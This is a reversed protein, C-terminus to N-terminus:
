CNSSSRRGAPRNPSRLQHQAVRDEDEGDAADVGQKRQAEIEDPAAHAHDIEAEGSEETDAGIGGGQRRLEAAQRHRDAGCRNVWRELDVLAHLGHGRGVHDVHQLELGLLADVVERDM